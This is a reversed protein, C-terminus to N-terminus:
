DELRRFSQPRDRFPQALRDKKGCLRQWLTPRLIARYAGPRICLYRQARNEFPFVAYVIDGSQHDPMILGQTPEAGIGIDDKICEWKQANFGRAAEEAVIRDFEEQVARSVLPPIRSFQEAM